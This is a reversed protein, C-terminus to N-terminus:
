GTCGKKNKLDNFALLFVHKDDTFFEFLCNPQAVFPVVLDGLLGSKM